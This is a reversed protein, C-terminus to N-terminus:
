TSTYRELEDPTNLNRFMGWDPSFTRADKEDIILGNLSRIFNQLSINGSNLCTELKPLVSVNYFANFPEFRGDYSTCCVEYVDNGMRQKMYRIYEMNVEPMDCAIFYVYKGSAAKLASQIGALPGMGPHEDSVYKVNHELYSKGLNSSVIFENFEPHLKEIIKDALKIGDITIFAKDFGMRSSKGGALIALTYFGDSLMQIVREYINATYRIIVFFFAYLFSWRVKIMKYM